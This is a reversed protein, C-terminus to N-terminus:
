IYSIVNTSTNRSYHSFFKNWILQAEEAMYVHPSQKVVTYKVLPVSDKSFTYTSYKTPVPFGAENEPTPESAGDIGNKVAWTIAAQGGGKTFDSGQMDYQGLFAWTPVKIDNSFGTAYQTTPFLMGVPAYAAFLNSIESAAVCTTMMSGLSHGTLYTKTKDISMSSLLRDVVTKIFSLDENEALVLGSYNWSPIPESTSSGKPYGQLMLLVFGEDEAIDVWRSEETIDTIASSSGHLLVVLPVKDTGTYSSPTYVRWRRVKGGLSEEYTSFKPDSYDYTSRITGGPYGMFRGNNTAYEFLSQEDDSFITKAIALGADFTNDNKNTASGNIDKWKQVIDRAM